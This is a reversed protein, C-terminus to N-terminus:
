SGGRIFLDFNVRGPKARDIARGGSRLQFSHRANFDYAVCGPLTFCRRACIRSLFKEVLGQATFLRACRVAPGRAVRRLRLLSRILIFSFVMFAAFNLSSLAYLLLTDSGTEPPLVPGLNLLQQAAIISLMLAVVGALVWPVTRRKRLKNQEDSQNTHTSM